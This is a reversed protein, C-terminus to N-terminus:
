RELRPTFVTNWGIQPGFTDDTVGPGSTTM